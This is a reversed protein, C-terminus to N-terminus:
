GAISGNAGNGCQDRRVPPQDDSGPPGGACLRSRGLPGFQVESPHNPDRGSGVRRDSITVAHWGVNWISQCESRKASVSAARAETSRIHSCRILITRVSSHADGSYRARAPAGSVGRTRSRWSQNAFRSQARIVGLRWEGISSQVNSSATKPLKDFDHKLLVRGAAPEVHSNNARWHHDSATDSGTPFWRHLCGHHFAAM